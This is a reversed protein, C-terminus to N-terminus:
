EGILSTNELERGSTEPLWLLILGLALVPFISTSAVVPGWAGTSHALAGVIMPSVVYTIRGLLNNSWAFADSRYETPFLEANYANLVPLVASAGFIGLTLGIGLLWKDHFVYAALVGVATVLFIVVAGPRRGMRDILHGSYFVLPMAAVAAISIMTGATKGDVGREAEVFVKWFTIANQTCIYTLGWIVALQILRWKYPTNWIATLPRAGESSAAKRQVFRETDRINRRMVALVILPITGVFYVLRWSLATGVLFPVVGACVISGLSSFAQIVGIILGRRDAPYEEAAYVMSIAWEGILFIRAIMQAFAFVYVNPALGSLFSFVTYGVITLMMVRRRGWSDAKRVLLYAVITGFNIAAVLLGAHSQDLEWEEMLLKLVQSLAMFDYGEFFSAVSLFVILRTQYGTLPTKAANDGTM